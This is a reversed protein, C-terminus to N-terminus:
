CLCSSIDSMYAHFLPGNPANKIREFDKQAYIECILQNFGVKKPASLVVNNALFRIKCQLGHSTQTCQAHEVLSLKNLSSAIDDSKIQDMRAQPFSLTLTSGDISSSHHFPGSFTFSVQQALGVEKASVTHLVNPKVLMFYGASLSCAAISVSGFVIMIRMVRSM